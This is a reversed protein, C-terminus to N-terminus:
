TQQRFQLAKAFRGADRGLNTKALAQKQQRELPKLDPPPAPEGKKRRGRKKKKQPAAATPETTTTKNTATPSETTSETTSEIAKEAATTAVEVVPKERAEIATADRSIHGVLKNTLTEKILAEHVLAPLQCQAFEAFARSFTSEAPVNRACTFGCIRRLRQDGHLRDILDRTTPAALVAKAVFARALVLRSEQPRGVGHWRPFYRELPVTELVMILQKHKESLPGLMHEMEPFLYEQIQRWHESLMKGVM